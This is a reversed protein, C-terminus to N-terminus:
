RVNYREVPSNVSNANDPTPNAMSRVYFAGAGNFTVNLAAVGAADVVFTQTLVHVWTGARREFITFTVSAPALEPRAPRVTSRFSVLTGADVTKVTGANTPRLLNIQRVVVRTVESIAAPLDAAGTFAARYFVSTVPTYNLTAQGSSDTTLTSILVFNTPNVPDRAGELRVQRNGGNPGLEVSLAVSGGWTIVSASATVKLTTAVTGPTLVNFPPTTAPALPTAPVVNSATAVLTYGTGAKDISCGQFTAVGQVTPGSLGSACTPTGGAPNGGISLTITASVSTVTNGAANQIAVQIPNAFAVGPAPTGPLTLFGLKTAEDPPTTAPTGGDNADNGAPDV